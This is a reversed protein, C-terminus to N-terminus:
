QGFGKWPSLGEPGGQFTFVWGSKPDIDPAEGPAGVALDDTGDGNFDGAALASGFEDDRENSGLGQQTLIQWPRLSGQNTGKFVYVAGADKVEDLDEQPSAVALDIIGDGNFDGSVMESGFFDGAENKGLVWLSAIMENNNTSLEPVRNKEDVICKFEHSGEQNLLYPVASKVKEGKKFIRLAILPVEAPSYQPSHFPKAAVLVGDVYFGINFNNEMHIGVQLDLGKNSFECVLLVEEALPIDWGIRTGPNHLPNDRSIWIEDVILDPLSSAIVPPTNILLAMTIFLLIMQFFKKMNDM